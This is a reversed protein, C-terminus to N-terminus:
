RDPSARADIHMYASTGMDGEVIGSVPVDKTPREGDLVEMTVVDGVRAGLVEALKLSLVLGGPPLRMAGGHVDVVRNLDSESLLGQHRCSGRASRPACVRPVARLPEAHIM